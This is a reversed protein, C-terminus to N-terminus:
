VKVVISPDLRFSRANFIEAENCWRDLTYTVWGDNEIKGVSEIKSAFARIRLNGEADAWEPFNVLGHNIAKLDEFKVVYVAQSCYRHDRVKKADYKKLLKREKSTFSVYAYVFLLVILLILILVFVLKSAIYLAFFEPFSM